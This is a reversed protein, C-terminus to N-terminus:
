GTGPIEMACHVVQAGAGCHRDEAGGGQGDRVPAGDALEFRTKAKAIEQELAVLDRAAMTPQRPKQGHGITFALQWHTWGLEFALHLVGGQTSVNGTYAATM